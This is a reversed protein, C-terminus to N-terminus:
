RCHTNAGKDYPDILPDNRGLLYYAASSYPWDTPQSTMGAKVPNWEVYQGCTYLYSENEILLSRFRERWLPGSRDTKLNKWRTFRFKVQNLASSFQKVQPISVM